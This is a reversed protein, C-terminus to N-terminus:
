EQKKEELKYKKIELIYDYIDIKKIKTEELVIKKNYLPCDLVLTEFEGGEGIISIKKEKLKELLKLTLNKGVFGEANEFSARVIIMEFKEKLLKKYYEEENKQWLPNYVELGLEEGIMILRNRQYNSKIAGSSFGTIYYKKISEKLAEKLVKLEEEKEGRTEKLILPISTIESITKSFDVNPTHYMYSNENKSKITIFNKINYNFNKLTYCSYLSDKGTSILSAINKGELLTTKKLYESKSKFNNKKTIKEFEKDFGNIYQSAKKPRESFEKYEKFEEKIIKRLVKKNVVEVYNKGVIKKWFSIIIKKTFYPYRLEISNNMAIIDEKYANKEYHQLLNTFSENYYDYNTINRNYGLFIEDSGIGSLVIKYGLEKAKKTYFHTTLVSSVKLSHPETITLAVKKIADELETKKVEYQILKFGLKEALIKSYYSDSNKKDYGELFVNILDVKYNLQKLILALLLSDVGGSFALAIKNKEYLEKSHLIIKKVSDKIEEYLSKTNYPFIIPLYKQKLVFNKVDFIYINRPHVEKAKTYDYNNDYFFKKTSSIIFDEDEKNYYYVLPNLGLFDRFFFMYNERYYIIAFQGELLNYFELFKESVNKLDEITFSDLFNLLFETDNKSNFNLNYKKNYEEEISKYNYIECNALLIGKGEFIPKNFFTTSHLSQYLFFNKINKYTEYDLGRVKLSNLDLNLKEINNKSKNEKQKKYLALIGCMKIM